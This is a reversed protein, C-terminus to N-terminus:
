KKTKKIQKEAAKLGETLHELGGFDKNIKDAIFTTQVEKLDLQLIESLPKLYDPSAPREGREVKSLTSTDIDLHAAVKRLPLNKAERAKRIYDGFTENSM